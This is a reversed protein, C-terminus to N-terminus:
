LLWAQRWSRSWPPQRNKLCLVFFRERPDTPLQLCSIAVSAAILAKSTHM